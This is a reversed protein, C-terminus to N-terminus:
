FGLAELAKKLEFIPKFILAVALARGREITSVNPSAAIATELIYLM